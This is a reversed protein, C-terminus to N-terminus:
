RITDPFRWNHLHIGFSIWAGGLVACPWTSALRCIRASIMRFLPISDNKFSTKPNWFSARCKQAGRQISCPMSLSCRRTFGQIARIDHQAGRRWTSDPGRIYSCFKQFLTMPMMSWSRWGRPGRLTPARWANSLSAESAFCRHHDCLSTSYQFTLVYLKGVANVYKLFDITGGWLYAQLFILCINSCFWTKAMTCQLFLLM